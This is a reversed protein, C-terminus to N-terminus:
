AAVSSTLPLPRDDLFAAILELQRRIYAPTWAHGAEDIVAVSVRDSPRVTEVLREVDVIRDNSAVLVLVPHRPDRLADLDDLRLGERLWDRAARVDARLQNEFNVQAEAADFDSGEVLLRKYLDSVVRRRSLWVIAPYVGPATMVRVQLHFRKRIIHPALLPTHLVLRRSAHPRLRQVALAVGAGLCLGALDYEHAGADDAVAIAAEALTLAGHARTAFPMSDGFGPLDPVVLTRRVMLEDFWTHFNEASGIFGHCLLMPPGHGGILYRLRRGQHATVRESLGRAAPLIV